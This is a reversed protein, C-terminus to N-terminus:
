RQAGDHGEKAHDALETKRKNRRTTTVTTKHAV